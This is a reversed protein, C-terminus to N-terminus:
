DRFFEDCQRFRDDRLMVESFRTSFLQSENHPSRHFGLEEEVSGTDFLRGGLMEVGENHLEDAIRYGNFREPKPRLRLDEM